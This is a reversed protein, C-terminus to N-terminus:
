GLVKEFLEDSNNYSQVRGEKIDELAEEIGTEQKLIAVGKGESTFFDILNLFQKGFRTTEDIKLTITKM